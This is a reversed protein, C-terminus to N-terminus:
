IAAPSWKISCLPRISNACRSRTSSPVGEGGVRPHALDGTIPVVGLYLESALRRNLRLEEECFRRRKELTSFDPSQLGLPKKIKYAYKGTLFIDSMPTELRQVQRVPHLYCTPHLLAELLAQHNGRRPARTSGSGYTSMAM